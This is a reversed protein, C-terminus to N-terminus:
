ADPHFHSLFHVLLRVGFGTAGKPRYPGDKTSFGPGAIDLHAWPAAGKFEGLFVAAASAGGHRGGTNKLDAIDSKIMDRYCDWLPLEWIREGTMKSAELLNQRVREDRTFLGAVEEGLAVTCAGTLTAIDILVAPKFRAAYTLADALILRGEADTTIIEVTKGLMTKLVDGPRYAGGGPMNETAPILGVVNVPLKLDAAACLTALVAAAGAMDAKMEGMKDAPKLSIGGTDFTIGKGVLVVNEARKGAGHYELIIFRPPEHSGQSVGLLASMGTKKIGNGDLVTCKMKRARAAKLAEEGLKAPTLDNAPANGLDRALCVARCVGEAQRVVRKLVEAPIVGNDAVVIGQLPRSEERETKYKRYQYQGLLVGELAAGLFESPEYTGEGPDAALALVAGAAASLKQAGRAFSSRVTELDFKNREGLGILLVRAVPAKRGTHLLLQQNSKGQFDGKGLIDRILGDCAQDIELAQGSLGEGGKAQVQFLPVAVADARMEPLRGRRIQIEM